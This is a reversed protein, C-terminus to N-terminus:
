PSCTSRRRPPARGPAIPRSSAGIDPACRWRFPCPSGIGGRKRHDHGRPRGALPADAVIRWKVRGRGVGESNELMLWDEGSTTASWATAHDNRGWPAVIVEGTVTTDTAAFVTDAVVHPRVGATLPVDIPLEFMGRGHTAAVLRGTGPRAALDFVAVSPIGEARTWIGGGSTSHFVGLDAGVFVANADRPDYLVANVPMNPLNGTRDEWTEGANRTRFVHGSNFGGVVAYAQNPDHPHVAIDAIYREAPLGRSRLQWTKAVTALSTFAPRGGGVAM